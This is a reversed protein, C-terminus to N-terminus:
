KSAALVESPKGGGIATRACSPPFEPDAAESKKHFFRFNITDYLSVGTGFLNKLDANM